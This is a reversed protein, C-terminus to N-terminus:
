ITAWILNSNILLHQLYMKIHEAAVAADATLGIAEVVIYLYDTKYALDPLWHM